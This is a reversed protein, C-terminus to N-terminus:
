YVMRKMPARAMAITGMGVHAELFPGTAGQSAQYFVTLGDKIAMGNHIQYRAFGVSYLPATPQQVTRIGVKSFISSPLCEKV